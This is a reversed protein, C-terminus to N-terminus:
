KHTQVNLIEMIKHFVESNEYIGQFKHSYPGYAFIPVMAATHDYTTFDGEVWNDQINGQPISFGSTEHDATIIVLTNGSNDAFKIAETIAEDFDIGESVIGPVNNQHAYKDIKAGEVMLFFPQKKSNLFAIGNKTARALLNDRGEIIGPLDGKAFFHGVKKDKSRGIDEVSQMIQFGKLTEKNDFDLEGGGMFLSLKSKSLDSVIGDTLSRDEQHAYFSAPTAGTLKDTTICGSIYGAKSLVEPINALPARLTDLGVARNYTKAGTALATGAAASDTTFDDASATKLFGISKLQTLTLAGGNALVSASIHSLGNGDGILLIVNEVTREKQDSTYRPKYIKSIQKTQFSRKPLSALFKRCEFPTDTNIYDVNLKALARWASKTDPTAWFRFPKGYSHAKEITAKVKTYDETTLRGLGNWKSTKKFNLSILAVKSWQKPDNINELSQYDFMIYSPYNLYTNVPPRNGSITLIINPNKRIEPYKQLVSILSELTSVAESKVDILLQLPTQGLLDLTIAKQIPQFYLNEITRDNIIESAEHTAYLKGDRLYIDVEISRAGGSLAKWFPFDQEYDNHSHVEQAAIQTLFLSTLCFFISVHFKVYKFGGFSFYM